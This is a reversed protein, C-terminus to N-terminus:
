SGDRILFEAMQLDILKTIKFNREDGEVICASMGSAIAIGIDDTFQQSKLKKHLECILAFDFGQPTQTRYVDGRNLTQYEGARLIKVTDCVPLAVDVVKEGSELRQIVSSIIAKTVLPRVADHVLVHKPKYRELALLGNRVSEQRTVGGIAFPLLALGEVSASYLDLHEENVVVLVADVLEHEVFKRITRGLVTEKGLMMYQKPISSGFRSGCGSAVIIAANRM